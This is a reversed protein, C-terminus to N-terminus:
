ATERRRDQLGNVSFHGVGVGDAHERQKASFTDGAPRSPRITRMIIRSLIRTGLAERGPEVIFPEIVRKVCGRKWPPAVAQVPWSPHLRRVSERGIAPHVAVSALSRGFTSRVDVEPGGGPDNQRWLQGAQNLRNAMSRCGWKNYMQSRSPAFRALLTRASLAGIGM